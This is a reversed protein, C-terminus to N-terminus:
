QPTDPYKVTVHESIGGDWVGGHTTDPTDRHKVKTHAAIGADWIGGKTTDPTVPHVVKVHQAIGADWTEAHAVQISYLSLFISFIYYTKKM